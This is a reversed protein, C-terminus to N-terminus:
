HKFGKAFVKAAPHSGDGGFGKFGKLRAILEALQMSSRFPNKVRKQVITRAIKKAQREEGYHRKSDTLLHHYQSNLIEEATILTHAIANKDKEGPKYAMRMDLTGDQRYSFGRSTDDIQISSMGIDLLIGDLSGPGINLNDKLLKEMDGFRGLLPMLRGKFEGALAEAREFAAPDQDVAIVKCGKFRELM